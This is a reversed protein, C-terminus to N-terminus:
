SKNWTVYFILSELVVYNRIVKLCEELQDLQLFILCIFMILTVHYYLFPFINFLFSNTSCVYKKAKIKYIKHFHFKYSFFNKFFNELIVGLSTEEQALM